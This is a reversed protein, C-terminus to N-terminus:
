SYVGGRGDTDGLELGVAEGVDGVADGVCDGVRVEYKLSLTNEKTPRPWQKSPCPSTTDLPAPLWEASETPSQESLHM